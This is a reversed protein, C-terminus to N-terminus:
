GQLEEAFDLFHVGGAADGVVVIDTAPNGAFTAATIAADAMFFAQQRGDSGRWLRATCDSSGTLLFKSDPSWVMVVLAAKHEDLPPLCGRGVLDWVVVSHDELGVAMRHGDPSFSVMCPPQPHDLVAVATGSSLRTVRVTRDYAATALLSEDKTMAAAVLGDTHGEVVFRTSATAVDWVRATNDKAYTVAMSADRSLLVGNVGGSHTRSADREGRKILQATCKGSEVDWVSVTSDFLLVAAMRCHADFAMAKVRSGQQAPMSARLPDSAVSACMELMSKVHSIMGHHGLVHALHPQVAAPPTGARSTSVLPSHIAGPPVRPPEPSPVPGAPVVPASSQATATGSEANSGSGPVNLGELLAMPDEDHSPRTTVNRLKSAGPTGGGGVGLSAHLASAESDHDHAHGATSAHPSPNTHGSQNATSLTHLVMDRREISRRRAVANAVANFDGWNWRCIQRDGSGTLVYAGDASVAMYRVGVAHADMRKLCIGEPPDWLFVRGDEGASVVLQGDPLSHLATVKNGGHTPPPASEERVAALDWVRATGDEGATVAFRGRQTLAVCCVEGTHGELHAERRGSAMDWICCSGDGSVTIAKTGDRTVAGDTVHATHGELVLKCEGTECDWVRATKDDSCTVAFSGGWDVTVRNLRGEHGSLVLICRGKAAEWIRATGDHSATVVRHTTGVFACSVVWGGHGELVRLQEGDEDLDWVRGSFDDSATVALTGDACIAVDLVAGVMGTASGHGRLVAECSGDALSWVRGTGDDAATVCRIGQKDIALANVRATHGALTHTVQGTALSWVAATGDAAAVVVSASDPTVGVATLPADRAVQMVCDGINMDWAQASGDDSITVVDCCNPAIAVRRVPASHGRLTMRQVGGAQALSPSRPMLHLLRSSAALMSEAACKATQEDFWDKLRGTAAVAMLRALMQERMMRAQPHEMAAGLSLQFAQLLLKVDLTSPADAEVESLYRRFDRVVAGVGYAHLKAELWVPNMLLRRLADLRGCGVLHHSLAQVIYGDDRLAELAVAGGRTYGDLLQGHALAVAGPWCALAHGLHPPAPLAWRSGDELTALRLIGAAALARCHELAEDTSESKWLKALVEVPVPTDAPLAGMLPYVAAVPAPPEYGPLTDAAPQPRANQPQKDGGVGMMDAAHISSMRAQHSSRAVEVAPPVAPGSAEPPRLHSGSARPNNGLHAPIGEAAFSSRNSYPEALGTQSGHPAPGGSNRAAGRPSVPPHADAGPPLHNRSASPSPGSSGTAGGKGNTAGDKDGKSDDSSKSLDQVSDRVGKKPSAGHNKFSAHIGSEEVAGGGSGTDPKTGLGGQASHTCGM